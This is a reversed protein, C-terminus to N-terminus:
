KFLEDDNYSDLIKQKEESLFVEDLDILICESCTGLSDLSIEELICTNEKQYICFINECIM